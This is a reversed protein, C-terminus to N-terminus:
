RKGARLTFLSGDELISAEVEITSSTNGYKAVSVVRYINSHILRSVTARIHHEERHLGAFPSFEHTFVTLYENGRQPFSRSGRERHDQFAFNTRIHNMAVSVGAWAMYYATERREIASIKGVQRQFVLLTSSSLLTFLAFFVIM